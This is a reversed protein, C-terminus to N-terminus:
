IGFHIGEPKLKGPYINLFHYGSKRPISGGVCLYISDESNEKRMLSICHYFDLSLGTSVITSKLSDLPTIAIRGCSEYSLLINELLELSIIEGKHPQLIRVCVGKMINFFRITFDDGASIIIGVKRSQNQENKVSYSKCLITRVWNTHDNFKKVKRRTTPSWLNLTNEISHVILRLSQKSPEPESHWLNLGQIPQIGIKIRHVTVGKNWDWFRVEGSSHSSIIVSGKYEKTNSPYFVKLKLINRSSGSLRKVIKNQNYDYIVLKGTEGGIVLYQTLKDNKLTLLQEICNMSFGISTKFLCFGDEVNWFKIQEDDGVTIIVKQYSKDNILHIPNLQFVHRIWQNHACVKKCIQDLKDDVDGSSDLFSYHAFCDGIVKM